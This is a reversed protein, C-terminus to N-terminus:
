KVFYDYAKKANNERKWIPSNAGPREYHICFARAAQAPTKCKDFISIDLTKKLYELQGQIDLYWAKSHWKKSWQCLGYHNGFKNVNNWKLELTDGGCERMMNGIIGACINDNWGFSKLTDWVEQAVPYQIVKKTTTTTTTTTVITTTTSTTTTAIITSTPATIEAEEETSEATVSMFVSTIIISIVVIILLIM